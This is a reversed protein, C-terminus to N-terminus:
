IRHRRSRHKFYAAVALASVLVYLFIFISLIPVSLPDVEPACLGAVIGFAILTMNKLTVKANFKM